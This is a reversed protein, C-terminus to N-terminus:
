NVILAKSLQAKITEKLKDNLLKPMRVTRNKNTIRPITSLEVEEYPTREPLYSNVLFGHDVLFEGITRLKLKDINCLRGYRYVANYRTELVKSQFLQKVLSCLRDLEERNTLTVRDYLRIIDPHDNGHASTLFPLEEAFLRLYERRFEPAEIPPLFSKLPQNYFEKEMLKIYNTGGAKPIHVFYERPAAKRRLNNSIEKYVDNSLNISIFGNTYYHKIWEYM